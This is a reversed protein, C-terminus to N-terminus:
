LARLHRDLEALRQPTGVDLWYGEHLEGGIAEQTMAARLLPALAAKKGPPIGAFLLPDYIGIGSFTLRPEGVASLRNGALVFDGQPHHPPNTVMVLHARLSRDRLTRALPPLRAYDFDSAIDANIVAFPEQGLLPLARVIGGASELAEEEPSWVIRVGLHEGNGLTEELLHGLHAHNIVLNHLGARALAEIHWVILPKGGACLLPKPTTDTLPRMREGRGAALIMVKM